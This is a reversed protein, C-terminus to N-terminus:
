MCVLQMKGAVALIFYVSGEKYTQAIQKFIDVWTIQVIDLAIKYGLWQKISKTNWCLM